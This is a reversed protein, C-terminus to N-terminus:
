RAFRAPRGALALVSREARAREGPDTATLALASWAEISLPDSEVARRAFEVATPEAAGALALTLQVLGRPQAPDITWARRFRAIAQRLEDQRRDGSYEAANLLHARGYVRDIRALLQPDEISAFQRELQWPMTRQTIVIGNEIRQENKEETAAYAEALAVWGEEYQSRLEITRTLPTIATFTDGRGALVRGLRFHVDADFKEVADDRRVLLTRLLTERANGRQVRLRPADEAGLLELATLLRDETVSDDDLIAAALALRIRPERLFPSPATPDSDVTDAFALLTRLNAAAQRPVRHALRSRGGGLLLTPLAPQTLTAALRAVAADTLALVPLPPKLPASLDFGSLGGPVASILFAHRGHLLIASTRSPVQAIRATALLTSRDVEALDLAAIWVKPQTATLSCAPLLDRLRETFCSPLIIRIASDDDALDSASVTRINKRMEDGARAALSPAEDGLWAIRENPAVRRLLTLLADIPEMQFPWGPPDPEQEPRGNRAARLMPAPSAGSDQWVPDRLVFEGLQSNPGHRSFISAVVFALAMAVRSCLVRAPRFWPGEFSALSAIAVAAIAITIGWSFPVATGIALGLAFWTFRGSPRVARGLIAGLGAVIVVPLAAGATSFLSVGFLYASRSVTPHSFAEARALWRSADVEHGCLVAVALLAFALEFARQSNPHRRVVFRLAAAGLAALFLLPGLAFTLASADNGLIRLTADITPTVCASLALGVPLLAFPHRTGVTPLPQRLPVARDLLAIAVALAGPVMASAFGFDAFAPRALLWGAAAGLCLLDLRWARRRCLDLGALLILACTALRPAGFYLGLAAFWSVSAGFLTPVAFDLTSIAFTARTATSNM